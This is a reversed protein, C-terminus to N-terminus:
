PKLITSKRTDGSLIPVDRHPHDPSESPVTEAQTRPPVKVFLLLVFALSLAVLPVSMGVITDGPTALKGILFPGFFGGASALSNIVAIGVVSQRKTLVQSILAWYTPINGIVGCALLILGVMGLVPSGRFVATMILGVIATGFCCLVIFKRRGSIDAYRVLVLMVVAGCAYPISGYIGINTPSYSPNLQSVVQPLFFTMGYAAVGALANILGLYLIKPNRLARLESSKDHKEEPMAAYEDAISGELWKKEDHSLWKAKSPRDALTLLIWIGLLVPPLGQLIFIWRWSSLGLWNGHDLILGGSLSGVILAVPMALAMVGIARGRDHNLFWYTLFLICGPFLGAEAIGLVIRAIYLQTVSYVFGTAITVLGWTIAIRALWLRAGVRALIMNSPVELLVYAVFFIAAIAGYTAVDIGLEKGMTLQAYSISSRDMYNFAYLLFVVPLITRRVKGIVAKRDIAPKAPISNTVV